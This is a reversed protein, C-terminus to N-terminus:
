HYAQKSSARLGLTEVEYNVEEKMSAGLIRLDNINTEMEPILSSSRLM